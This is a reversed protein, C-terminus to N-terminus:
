LLTNSFDTQPYMSRCLFEGTGEFKDKGRMCDLFDKRYELAVNKQAIAIEFGWKLGLLLFFVTALIIWVKSNM